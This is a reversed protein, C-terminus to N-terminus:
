GHAPVGDARPARHCEPRSPSSRRADARPARHCETEVPEVPTGPPPHRNPVLSPLQITVNAPIGIGRGDALRISRPNLRDVYHRLPALPRRRRGQDAPRRRPGASRPAAPEPRRLRRLAPDRRAPAADHARASRHVRGSDRVAHQRLLGAGSAPLDRGQPAQPPTVNTSGVGNLVMPPSLPPDAVDGAPPATVSGFLVAATTVAVGGIAVRRRLRRPPRSVHAVLETRLAAAVHPDLTRTMAPHPLRGLFQRHRRAARRQNLSVNTATVLLWPLLSGDTLRTERRRRWLELFTIAM